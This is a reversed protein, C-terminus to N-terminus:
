KLDGIQASPTWLARCPLFCVIEGKIIVVPVTKGCIRLKQKTECIVVMLLGERAASKTRKKTRESVSNPGSIENTGDSQDSIVPGM